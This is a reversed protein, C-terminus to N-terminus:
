EYLEKWKLKKPLHYVDGMSELGWNKFDKNWALISIATNHQWFQLLHKGMPIKLLHGIIIRNTVGHAVILITKKSEREHTIKNLLRKLKMLRMNLLRVFFSKLNVSPYESLEDFSKTIPVKIIKSIIKATHISRELTSTYIKDVKIKEKKLRKGLHEAQIKGKRSLLSNKSTVKGSNHESEGHRVLIIKM